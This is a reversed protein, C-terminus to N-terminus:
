LDNCNNENDLIDNELQKNRKAIGKEDLVPIIKGQMKSPSKNHKLDKEYDEPEFYNELFKVAMEAIKASKIATLSSQLM